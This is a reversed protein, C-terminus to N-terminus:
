LSQLSHPPCTHESVLYLSQSPHLCFCLPLLLLFSQSRALPFPNRFLSTTKNRLIVLIQQIRKNEIAPLTTKKNKNKKELCFKRLPLGPNRGFGVGLSHIDQVVKEPFLQAPCPHCAGFGLTPLFVLPHQVACSGVRDLPSAESGLPNGLCWLYCCTDRWAAQVSSRM